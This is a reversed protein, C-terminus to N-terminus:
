PWVFGISMRFGGKRNNGEDTMKEGISFVNPAIRIELSKQQEISNSEIKYSKSEQWFFYIVKICATHCLSSTLFRLFITGNGHDVIKM